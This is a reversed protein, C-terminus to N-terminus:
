NNIKINFSQLVQKIFIATFLFFWISGCLNDMVRLLGAWWSHFTIYGPCLTQCRLHCMTFNWHSYVLLGAAGWLLAKQEAVKFHVLILGRSVKHECHLTIQIKQLTAHKKGTIHLICAPDREQKKVDQFSKGFIWEKKRLKWTVSFEQPM